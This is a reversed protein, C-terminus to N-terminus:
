EHGEDARPDLADRLWDGFLNIGLTTLAIAVGPFIALWPYITLFQRGLSLMNGWSPVEPPVSLGLFGLGSEYFIMASVEFTALTALPGVLNPLLHRPIIRGAGAGLGIAAEVYALRKLRLVEGRTVRIFVPAGTIGFLLIVNTLSRGLVTAVVIVLVLYPISLLLNTFGTIITDLWGGFYGALLGLTVGISVALLAGLLGVMLSVRSGYVIRTFVDQGLQDTGLLHAASGGEMWAPPLRAAMFDGETPGYPTIWPAFLAAAVIVLILTLGVSGGASGRLKRWLRAPAYLSEGEHRMRPVGPLTEGSAGRTGTV